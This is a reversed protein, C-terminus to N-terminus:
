HHEKPVVKDASFFVSDPPVITDKPVVAGAAIISNDGITVGPMIVANLGVVVHKGIKVKSLVFRHHEFIHGIVISNGGIVSGRGIELLSLDWVYRSNIQVGMGLKSGMMLYCLTCLPTLMLFDMFVVKVLMFLANLFFWKLTEIQGIKYRGEKLRMCSLISICGVTLMLSLGFVFYGGTYALCTWYVGLIGTIGATMGKIWMVFYFAPVLGLAAVFAGLIYMLFAWFIEAITLM